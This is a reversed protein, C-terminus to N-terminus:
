LVVCLSHYCFNGPFRAPRRARTKPQLGFQVRAGAAALRAPDRKQVRYCPVTQTPPLKLGSVAVVGAARLSVYVSANMMGSLPLPFSHGFYRLSRGNYPRMGMSSYGTDRGTSADAFAPGAINMIDNRLTPFSSGVRSSSGAWEFSGVLFDHVL